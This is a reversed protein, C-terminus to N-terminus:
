DHVSAGADLVDMRTSDHAAREDDLEVAKAVHAAREDTLLRTTEDVTERLWRILEVAREVTREATEPCPAGIEEILTQALRRARDDKM